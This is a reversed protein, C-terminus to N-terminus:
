QVHPVSAANVTRADNEAPWQKEFQKKARIYQNGCEVQDSWTPPHECSAPVVYYTKWAAEKRRSQEAMQQRIEAAARASAEKDSVQEGIAPLSAVPAVPLPLKSQASSNTKPVQTGVTARSVSGLLASPFKALQTVVILGSVLCAGILGIRIIPKFNARIESSRTSATVSSLSDTDGDAILARLENDPAIPWQLRVLRMGASRIAKSKRADRELQASQAHSADDLEIVAIVTFDRRCLVFDAVLQQYKNRLSRRAATGSQVAILQSLAFQAFVIHSPFLESLRHYLVRERETLPGKLQVPWHHDESRGKVAFERLFWLGAVALLTLLLVFAMSKDDMSATAAPLEM